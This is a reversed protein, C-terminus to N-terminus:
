NNTPNTELIADEIATGLQVLPQYTPLGSTLVTIIYHRNQEPFVVFAVDNYVSWFSGTYSWGVKDYVEAVTFGSPLGQRWVYTTSPQNLMSDLLQNWSAVDFGGHQWLVKMFDTIDAATSYLGAGTTRTLGLDSIIGEVRNFRETDARIPDACGNYSERIMLDLCTSLSLEGKDATNAVITTPNDSGDSIRRYGDYVFFLKYVSAMNFVEDPNFSAALQDNDLDYIMVAKDGATNNAWQDVVPQLDIFEPTVPVPDPTEEPAEEVVSSETNEAENSNDVAPRGQLFYKTVTAVILTVGFATFFILLLRLWNKTIVRPM